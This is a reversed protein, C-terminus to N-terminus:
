VDISRTASTAFARYVDTMQERTTDCQLRNTLLVAVQGSEPHVMGLTGTYGTHSYFFDRDGLRESDRYRLGICQQWEGSIVPAFLQARAGDGVVGAAGDALETFFKFLDSANSFLGANGSVGDLARARPDHVIGSPLPESPESSVAIETGFPKYGTNKLGLPELIHASMLGDFRSGLFEELALAFLSYGTCSYVMTGRQEPKPLLAHLSSITASRDSGENWIPPLGSSHTLLERSTLMGLETPLDAWSGIPAALDLRGQDHLIAALTATFLKTLSAIDFVTDQTVAPSGQLAALNGGFGSKEIQGDVGNAFQFGSFLASAAPWLRAELDQQTTM